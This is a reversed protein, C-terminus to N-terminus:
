DDDAESGDKNFYLEIIKSDKKIDVEYYIVGKFDEISYCCKIESDKFKDKVAKKVADPLSEYAIMLGTEVWKGDKIFTAYYNISDSTFDASYEEDDAEWKVATANPFKGEFASKVKDPVKVQAFSIGAACLLIILLIKKM